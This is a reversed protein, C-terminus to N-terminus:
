GVKPITFVDGLFPLAPPAASVAVRLLVVFFFALFPALGGAGFFGLLVALFRAAAASDCPRDAILPSGASPSKPHTGYYRRFRVKSRRVLL